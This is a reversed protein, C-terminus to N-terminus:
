SRDFCSGIREDAAVVSFAKPDHNAGYLEICGSYRPDALIAPWSNM